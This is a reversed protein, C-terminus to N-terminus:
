SAAGPGAGGAPDPLYDELATMTREVAGGHALAVQGGAEAIAGAEEPDAMLRDVTAALAAVDPVSVAGGAGLFTRYVASFNDTHPGVVVACGLRGPEIPNQGGKEVLSGGMLVVAALRFFLGLEGITDAIYIGGEAPVPEGASRLAVMHGAEALRARIEPGRQPHRPVLLTVLGNWRAALQAHAAAVMDEEGPHTSAALWRPRDGLAARLAELADPDASLAAGDYKMNGVNRVKEVGLARFRAADDASQAFVETIRGFIARHVLPFRSWGRASRKSMRGNVVIAPIAERSLEDLAVPWLESEVFLALSPRWHRLFRHLYTVVDLAAFQHVAGEPLKEAAVRSATVTTTTLLVPLGRGALREILPLVANTEGVSACHIWVLPGGPRPLSPRGRREALRAPDEKGRRVRVLLLGYLVPRAARSLGRWFTYLIADARM